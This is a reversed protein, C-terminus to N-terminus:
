ELQRCNPSWKMFGISLKGDDHEFHEKRRIYLIESLISIAIEFPTIAGIDVGIPMYIKELKEVEVGRATLREYFRAVKSKSGTMGIYKLKLDIITRLIREDEQHLHTSIVVYTEENLNLKPISDVFDCCVCDSATPFREKSLLDEREDVVIVSFGASSAISSLEKGIHGAGFIVLRPPLEIQEIFFQMSGGCCMGLDRTLHLTYLIPKNKSFFDEAMEMLKYEVAGGGITGLISGDKFIAMKAGVRQPASGTISIITILLCSYNTSLKKEM